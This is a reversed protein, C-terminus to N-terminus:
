IAGGGPLSQYGALDEVFERRHWLEFPQNAGSANPVAEIKHYPDRILGDAPAPLPQITSGGTTTGPVRVPAGAPNFGVPIAPTGEDIEWTYTIEWIDRGALLSFGTLRMDTGNIRHVRDVQQAATRADSESWSSLAITKEFTALNQPFELYDLTWIQTEVVDTGNGVEETVLVSIPLRFRVQNFGGGTLPGDLAPLRGSAQRRQYAVEVIAANKAGDFPSIRFEDAPLSPDEPHASGRAPIGPQSGDFPIAAPGLGLVKFRRTKNNRGNRTDTASPGPDDFLEIVEVAM